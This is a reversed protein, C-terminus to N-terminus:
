QLLDFLSPLLFPLIPPELLLPKLLAPGVCVRQHPHLGLALLPLLLGPWRLLLLPLLQLLLQAPCVPLAQACALQHQLPERPLRLALVLTGCRPWIGMLNQRAIAITTRARVARHSFGRVGSARRGRQETRFFEWLIHAARSMPSLAHRVCPYCKREPPLSVVSHDENLSFSPRHVLEHGAEVDLVIAFLNGGFCVFRLPM